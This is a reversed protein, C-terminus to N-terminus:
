LTRDAEQGEAPITEAQRIKINFIGREDKYSPQMGTIETGLLCPPLLMVLELGAHVVPCSRTWFLVLMEIYPIYTELM